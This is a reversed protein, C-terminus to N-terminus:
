EPGPRAPTSRGVARAVYRSPGAKDMGANAIRHRELYRRQPFAAGSEYTAPKLGPREVKPTDREHQRHQVLTQYREGELAALVKKLEAREGLSVGVPVRVEGIEAENTHALQVGPVTHDGHVPFVETDVPPVLPFGNREDARGLGTVASSSINM